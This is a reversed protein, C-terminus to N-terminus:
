RPVLSTMTIATNGGVGTAVWFNHVNGELRSLTVDVFPGQGKGTPSSEQARVVAGVDQVGGGSRVYTSLTQTWGLFQKVLAKAVQTPSNKWNQQGQDIAQQDKEAQYRTLDPFIGPFATQVLTGTGDSWDFERFLDTTLATVTKGANAPSNPDAEATIITNYNSIKADGNMLKELSFIQTPKASEINSFVYVDLYSFAGPHRAIVLAQLATTDMINACSVREVHRQGNNTGILTNWHALSAVVSPCTQTGLVVGPAPTPTLDGKGPTAAVTVGAGPTATKTTVVPNNPAKGFQAFAFIGGGLLLVFLAAITAVLYWRKKTPRRPPTPPSQPPLFTQGPSIKMTEQEPLPIQQNLGKGEDVHQTSM